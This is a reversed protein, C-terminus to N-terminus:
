GIELPSGSPFKHSAMRIVYVSLALLFTTAGMVAIEWVTDGTHTVLDVTHRTLATIAIYILFRIPMHNTKFYIGVMAGIELFIFLLLLDQISAHRKNMFIDLV